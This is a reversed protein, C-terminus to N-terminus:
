VISKIYDVLPKDHAASNTKLDLFKSNKINDAIYKTDEDPHLLDESAGILVCSTKSGDIQNLVPILSDGSWQKVTKKLKLPDALDLALAYKRRQLPDADKNTFKALAILKFIGKGIKYTVRNVLPLAMKLAIPLNLVLTPGVLIAHKPSIKKLALNHIITDSGMSSGVAIYDNQNEFGIQKTSEVFDQLMREKTFVSNKLTISTYKERSEIYDIRFNEDSLMELVKIWSLILTNMGPYLLVKGTPNEPHFYLRRLKVGDSMELYDVSFNSPIDVDKLSSGKKEM